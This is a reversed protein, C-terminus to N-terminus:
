LRKQDKSILRGGIHKWTKGYRIAAISQPTVGYRRGLEAHSEDSARIMRVDAELLPTRGHREGIPHQGRELADQTNKGNTGIYLHVPQICPKQDCTHLVCLDDPIPGKFMEYSLQHAGRSVRRPGSRYMVKGYGRNNLDGRWIWCGERPSSTPPPDEPM